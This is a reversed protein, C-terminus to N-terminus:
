ELLNFIWGAITSAGAILVAGIIYKVSSSKISAKDDAASMAYKAGIAILMGIAIAYGIYQIAGLIQSALVNNVPTNEIEKGAIIEEIAYVQSFVLSIMIFMITFHKMLKNKM